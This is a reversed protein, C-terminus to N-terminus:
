IPRNFQTKCLGDSRANFLFIQVKLYKPTIRNEPPKRAKFYEDPDDFNRLNEIKKDDDSDALEDVDDEDVLALLRADNRGVEVPVPQRQAIHQDIRLTAGARRQAM